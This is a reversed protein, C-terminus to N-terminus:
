VLFDSFFHPINCIYILSPIVKTNDTKVGLTGEIYFKEEQSIKKHDAPSNFGFLIFAVTWLFGIIGYLYFAFPWGWASGSIWGTVPMAIVTGFPGGVIKLVNIYFVTMYSNLLKGAFVFTGLRSREPLPAWKSLMTHICPFFFGQSFGQVARCIMVGWSGLEAMFPILITFLSCLAMTGLLFWRPGYAKSVQGAVIQPLIYGWFFSSLIM